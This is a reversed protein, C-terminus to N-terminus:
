VIDHQSVIGVLVGADDVVPLASVKKEFLVTAADAVDDTPKVSVLPSSMLEGATVALARRVEEEYQKTSELYIISDLFKLYRPFHLHANRAVLDIMTIMGVPKYDSDVVPLGTINHEILLRAIGIVHSEPTVTIVDKTMIQEVLM